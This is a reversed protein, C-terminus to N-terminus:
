FTIVVKGRAHGAALYRLADPVRDLPFRRDIVPEVDGAALQEQLTVLDHHRLQALMPVIRRRGIMSRAVGALARSMPGLLRNTKPGGVIVLTGGPRLTRATAGLPRSGVVDLVLDYEARARTFDEQSYDIVRDAGISRVLDVNGPGCVATVEAGLAKALQVAFTGVGGSAGNILVRQGSRLGGKDRLGQLATLGAIPVAAAQEFSVNAPKVVLREPTAVVYEAFAGLRLGFVDDGPQLDTVNPGVAAVQGAFDTGVATLRPRRLGNSLRVLYPTGTVVHWDQPNVSAARVRVLVQGEGAEPRDLERLALVDPAGYRDYVIAKM